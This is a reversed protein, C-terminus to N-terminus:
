LRENGREGFFIALRRFVLSPAIVHGELDHRLRHVLQLCEILGLDDLMEFLTRLEINQLRTLAIEARLIM